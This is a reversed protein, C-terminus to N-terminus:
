SLLELIYNLCLVVLDVHGTLKTVGHFIIEMLM